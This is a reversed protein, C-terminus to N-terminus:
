LKSTVQHPPQERQQDDECLNTMAFVNNPDLAGKAARYLRVGAASVTGEFWRTRLKGVGHHHSVSGGCAVIEDRAVAEIEEYVAVPSRQNRYNFAFYFYVVCGADYTQTVRCCIFPAVCQRVKCEDLVRRKVNACLTLTRDWPVSTEFSEAVVYYEMALDRIYAIVFTLMYGRLGNTEGAPIGGYRAAIANIQRENASVVATSTGEHLLTMVCMSLPDFGKVQSLYFLKVKDLFAAFRSSKGKLSQGFRFQENDMLRISAPQCRELAVHRMCQVGSAFDPFVVSGYRRVQPLPRVKLSVETILGLTGESGLVTHLPDPGCSIRPAAAGYGRELVDGCGTIMRIHVCLDEINGYTNKKMGSARTAVWGGLSSFEYSDPEHGSTFGLQGLERELDQGVIGSQCRAVLNDRDLWLIRNMQSTDVSIITRRETRPCEVAGSVATGGGFPLLVLNLRNALEVLKLCTEHCTPWVVVDPIRPFDMPAERLMYVDHLTHGHARYLRDLGDVSVGDPDGVIDALQGILQENPLVPNPYRDPLPQAPRIKFLDVDLTDKVWDTFHPLELEGIPYRRGTFHVIGNKVIFRSDQYGWGNWKLLEQRKKPIVSKVAIEEPHKGYNSISKQIQVDKKDAKAELPFPEKERSM